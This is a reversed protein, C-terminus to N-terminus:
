SEARQRCLPGALQEVGPVGYDRWSRIQGNEFVLVAVVHFRTDLEGAPGYYHETREQVVVSGLAHQRLIDFEIRGFRAMFRGVVEGIKAPGVYEPGGEYVMYHVDDALLGLLRDCDRASWAECFARAQAGNVREQGGSEPM